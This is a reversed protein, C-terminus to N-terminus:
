NSDAGIRIYNVDGRVIAGYWISVRDALEVDGVVIAGPALFVQAGLRPSKGDYTLIM